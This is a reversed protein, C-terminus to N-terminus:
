ESKTESTESTESTEKTEEDKKPVSNSQAIKAKNAADMAKQAIEWKDARINFAAQVGDKKETYIPPVADKIPEKNQVIKAVKKEITEGDYFETHYMGCRHSSKIIKRIM